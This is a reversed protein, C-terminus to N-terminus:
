QNPSMANAALGMAGAEGNCPPKMSSVCRTPADTVVTSSPQSTLPGGEFEARGGTHEGVAMPRMATSKTPNHKLQKASFWMTARQGVVVLHKQQL